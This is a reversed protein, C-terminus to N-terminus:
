WPLPNWAWRKVSTIGSLRMSSFAITLCLSGVYQTPIILTTENTNSMGTFCGRSRKRTPANISSCCTLFRRSHHATLTDDCRPYICLMAHGTTFYRVVFCPCAPTYTSLLAQRGIIGLCVKVDTQHQFCHGGSRAFPVPLYAALFVPSSPAGRHTRLEYDGCVGGPRLGRRCLADLFRGM